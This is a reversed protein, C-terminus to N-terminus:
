PPIEVLPQNTAANPRIDLLEDFAYAVGEDVQRDYIKPQTNRSVEFRVNVSSAPLRLRLSFAGRRDSQTEFPQPQTNPPLSAAPFVARILAGEVRGGGDVVVGDVSTTGADLAVGPLRHLPVRVIRDNPVVNVLIPDPDFYGADGAEIVLRFPPTPLPPPSALPAENRRNVFVYMGGANRVPKIPFRRLNGGIPKEFHVKIGNAILQGTFSDLVAVAIVVDNFHQRDFHVPRAARSM